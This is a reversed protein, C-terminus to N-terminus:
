KNKLIYVILDEIDEVSEYLTHVYLKYLDEFTGPILNQKLAEQSSIWNKSLIDDGAKTLQSLLDSRVNNRHIYTNRVSNQLAAIDAFSKPKEIKSSVETTHTTLKDNLISIITSKLLEIKKSYTQNDNSLSIM